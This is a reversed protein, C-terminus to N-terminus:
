EKMNEKTLENYGMIPQYTLTCDPYEEMYTSRSYGVCLPDFTQMDFQKMMMHMKM